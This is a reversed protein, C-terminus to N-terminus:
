QVPFGAEGDPARDASTSYRVVYDPTTYYDFRGTTDSIAAASAVYNLGDVSIDMGLEYGSIKESAFRDDLLGEDVLDSLGGFGQHTVLYINQAVNVQKLNSIAASENAAMRSRLFSPVALTTIILIIAVVILLELLSFGRHNTKKMITASM